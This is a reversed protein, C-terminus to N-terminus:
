PHFGSLNLFWNITKVEDTFIDELDFVSIAPPPLLPLGKAATQVWERSGKVRGRGTGRPCGFFHLPAFYDEQLTESSKNPTQTGWFYHRTICFCQAFKVMHM